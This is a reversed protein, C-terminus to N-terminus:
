IEFHHLVITCCVIIIIIIITVFTVNCYDCLCGFTTENYVYIYIIHIIILIFYEIVWDITHLIIMCFFEINLM